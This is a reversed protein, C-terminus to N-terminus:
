FHKISWRSRAGMYFTLEGGAIIDYHSIKNNIIDQGNLKAKLVYKNDASQNVARINFTKGNELNITASKVLPSGLEYYESGPAVPYFGLASFIYWASMQGLDDNGSLGDPTPKYKSDIIMRVTEQTKWPNATWNYLYQIHHSPENGHVYNGIIGERTIDETNEFYKDPLHMNFISDLYVE